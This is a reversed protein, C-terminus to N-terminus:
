KPPEPIPMWHTPTCKYYNVGYSDEVTFYWGYEKGNTPIGLEATMCYGTPYPWVMVEEYKPATEIKQWESM